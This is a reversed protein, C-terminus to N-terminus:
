ASSTLPTASSEPPVGRVLLWLGFSIEAIGSVSMAPLNWAQHSPLLFVTVVPVLYGLCGAMLLAGLVKPFWGSTFVLYGLPLLWLGTFLGSVTWGRSFLTLFFMASARTHEQDFIALPGEGRALILAGVQFVLNACITAVGVVVLLLFFSAVSKNSHEFLRFLVFAVCLWAVAMILESVISLRFLMESELINTITSDTDGAKVLGTRVMIPFSGTVFLVLYLAGARRALRRRGSTTTM